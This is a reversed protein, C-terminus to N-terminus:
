SRQSRVVIAQAVLEALTQNLVRANRIDERTFVNGACKFFQESHKNLKLVNELSANLDGKRASKTLKRAYSEAKDHMGIINDGKSEVVNVISNLSRILKSTYNKINDKTEQSINGTQTPRFFDFINM